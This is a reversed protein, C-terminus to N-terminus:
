GKARPHTLDPNQGGIEAGTFAEIAADFEAETLLPWEAEWRGISGAGAYAWAPTKKQAAWAPPAKQVLPAAATSKSESM